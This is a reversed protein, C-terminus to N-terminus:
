GAAAMKEGAVVGAVGIQDLAARTQGAGAVMDSGYFAVRVKLDLDPPM